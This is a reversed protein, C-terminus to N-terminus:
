QLDRFIVAIRGAVVGGVILQWLHYFILPLLAAALLHPQEAFYLSLLPIGLALTKQTGVFLLATTDRRDLAALRGAGYALVMTAPYFIALLALAFGTEGPLSGAGAPPTGPPTTGGEWASGASLFVMVLILASAAARLTGDYQRLRKAAAIRVTQGFALPLLMQRTLGALVAVIRTAPFAVPGTRLVLSLLLPSVVIGLVNAITANAAAAVSNGRATQTFVVNSSGTTPLVALALLGGQLAPSFLIGAARLLALLGIMVAPVVLFIFGQTVLYVRPRLLNERLTEAPLAMGIFVFIVVVVATRGTARLEGSPDAAAIAPAFLAAPVVAAVLGLTFWNRSLWRAIAACCSSSSGTSM